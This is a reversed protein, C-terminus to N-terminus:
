GRDHQQQQPLGAMCWDGGSYVDSRVSFKVGPFAEKLAKRMMVATDKCSIYKNSMKQKRRKVTRKDLPRLIRAHIDFTLVM